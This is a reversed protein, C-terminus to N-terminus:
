NISLILDFQPTTEDRMTGTFAIGQFSNLLTNIEPPLPQNKTLPFSNLVKMFQEMDLYFYGLNLAPLNATIDQFIPSSALSNKITVGTLKDISEGITMLFINENEWTYSLLIEDPYTKWETITKNAIKKTNVEILDTKQALKEVKDITLLATPRDSTELIITSAINLGAFNNFIGQNAQSIGLAFEGNLWGLIEKDLDLNLIKFFERSESLWYNFEPIEQAQETVRLWSTTLDNGTLLLLSDQPLKNLLKTNKPTFKSKIIQNDIQAIAQLHIGNQELGIGAFVSKVAGIKEITTNPIKQSLSSDYIQEKVIRLYDPIYINIIKNQLSFEQQINDHYSNFSPMGQFTDIALEITKRQRAVILKNKIVAYNLVFEDSNIAEIITVGRYNGLKFKYTKDQRLQNAFQLAKFKNKIGFIGLLEYKNEASPLFALMMNGLWPEVDKQYNLNNQGLFKAPLKEMTQTLIKQTQPNDIKTLNEWKEENTLIFTVMLAQEPIVMSGEAITLEEGQFFRLYTYTAGGGLVVAVIILLLYGWLSKKQKKLKIEAM